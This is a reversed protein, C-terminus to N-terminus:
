YKNIVFIFAKIASRLNSLIPKLMGLMKLGTNLEATVANEM